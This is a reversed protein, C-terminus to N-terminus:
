CHVQLAFWDTDDVFRDKMDANRQGAKDMHRQYHGLMTNLM